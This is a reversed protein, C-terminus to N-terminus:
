GEKEHEREGSEGRKAKVRGQVEGGWRRGEEGEEGVGVERKAVAPTPCYQMSVLVTSTRSSQLPFM